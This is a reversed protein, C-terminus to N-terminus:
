GLQRLGLVVAQWTMTGTGANYVEIELEDGALLNSSYTDQVVFLDTTETTGSSFTYEVWATWTTYPVGQQNYYRRRVRLKNGVSAVSSSHQFAVHIIRYHAVGQLTPTGSAGGHLRATGGASISGNYANRLIGAPAPSAQVVNLPNSADAPELNGNVPVFVQVADATLERLQM